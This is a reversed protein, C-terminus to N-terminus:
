YNVNNPPTNVCEAFRESFIPLINECRANPQRNSYKSSKPVNRAKRVINLVWRMRVFFSNLKCFYYVYNHKKIGSLAVFAAGKNSGSQWTRSLGVTMLKSVACCSERDASGIRTIQHFRKWSDVELKESPTGRRTGSPSLKRVFLESRHCFMTQSYCATAIQRLFEFNIIRCIFAAGKYQICITRRITSFLWM